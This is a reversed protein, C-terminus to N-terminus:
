GEVGLIKKIESVPWALRGNIRIPCILGNEFCAWTRLTQPRRNLYYAAEATTVTPRTVTEIFPFVDKIPSLAKDSM